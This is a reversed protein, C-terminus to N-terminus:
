QMKKTYGAPIEFLTAPIPDTTVSTVTMTTGAGMGGRGRMMDAMPGAGEMKMQIVQEYPIGGADALAKYMAAMGRENPGMNRGRGGASWFLGSATAAKYFDQFDKTGPGDKAIWTPGGMTMTMGQGQPMNPPTMSFSISLLYETCARGLIQRTQGTPTFSVKVDSPNASKQIQEGMKALDFITATKTDPDLTIMQRATADMITVTQRGNVTTEARMKGDKIYQVSPTDGMPGKITTKVTVDAWASAALLCTLIVAGLVRTM